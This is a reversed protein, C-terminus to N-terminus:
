NLNHPSLFSVIYWTILSYLSNVFFSYLVLSSKTFFTIWHSSHLFSFISWVFLHDICMKSDTRSFSVCLSRLSKSICVFWRIETLRDAIITILFLVLVQLITSKATGASWLTFTFSLSFFSSYGSMTLTNFFFSHLRFAVTIGITTPARPVSVWPKTFSSSSM